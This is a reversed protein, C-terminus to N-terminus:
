SSNWQRNVRGPYDDRFSVAVFETAGHEDILAGGRRSPSTSMAEARHATSGFPDIAM